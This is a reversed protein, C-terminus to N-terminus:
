KAAEWILAAIQETADPVDWKRLAEAAVERKSPTELWESISDALSGVTLKGEEQITAAGMDRFEVANHFQHNGAASPLPILVSPLGFVAFEALTGGSRAVAVGATQYERILAEAELFAAVEYDHAPMHEVAFKVKEFNKPGASHMFTVGRPRVHNSVLPMMENLVVSGQSGGIVLVHPNISSPHPILSADRLEKRVPMGTRVVQAGPFEKLSRNFTVAVKHAKQAFMLNSRGPVSNQEHIVYPIGLSRAAHMVPAASYGGTSFVV